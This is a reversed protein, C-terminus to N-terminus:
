KCRMVIEDDIDFVAYCRQVSLFYFIIVIWRLMDVLFMNRLPNRGPDPNFIDDIVVFCVTGGDSMDWDEVDKALCKPAAM